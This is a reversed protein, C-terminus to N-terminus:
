ASRQEILSEGRAYSFGNSRGVRGWSSADSCWGRGRPNSNAQSFEFIIYFAHVRQEFRLCKGDELNNQLIVMIHSIGIHVNRRRQCKSNQFLIRESLVGLSFLGM